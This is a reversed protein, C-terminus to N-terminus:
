SQSCLLSAPSLCDQHRLQWMLLMHLARKFLIWQWHWIEIAILILKQFCKESTQNMHVHFSSFAYSFWISQIFSCIKCLGLVVLDPKLWHEKAVVSCGVSVDFMISKEKSSTSLEYYMCHCNTLTLWLERSSRMRKDAYALLCEFAFQNIRNM